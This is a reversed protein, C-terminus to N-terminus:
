LIGKVNYLECVGKEYVSVYVERYVCMCEKRCVSMRLCVCECVCVKLKLICM